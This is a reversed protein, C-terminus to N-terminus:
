PAFLTAGVAMGGVLRCLTIEPNLRVKKVTAAAFLLWKPADSGGGAISLPALVDQPMGSAPGVPKFIVPAFSM